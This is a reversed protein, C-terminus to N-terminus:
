LREQYGEISFNMGFISKLKNEIDNKDYKMKVFPLFQRSTKVFSGNFKYRFSGSIGRDYKDIDKVKYENIRKIKQVEVDCIDEFVQILLSDPVDSDLTFEIRCSRHEIPTKFSIEFRYGILLIGAM